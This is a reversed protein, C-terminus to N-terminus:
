AGEPQCLLDLRELYLPLAVSGVVLYLKNVRIKVSDPERQVSVRDKLYLRM